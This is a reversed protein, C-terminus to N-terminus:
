PFPRNLYRMAGATKGFGKALTIHRVALGQTNPTQLFRVLTPLPIDGSYGVEKLVREARQQEKSTQLVPKESYLRYHSLGFFAHDVDNAWDPSSPDSFWTLPKARPRPVVVFEPAPKPTPPQTRLELTREAHSARLKLFLYISLTSLVLILFCAPLLIALLAVTVPSQSRMRTTLSAIYYFPLSPQSPHPYLSIFSVQWSM